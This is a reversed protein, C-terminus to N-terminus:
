SSTDSEELFFYKEFPGGFANLVGAIFAPGPVNYHPNDPPLKVRWLQTGSVGIKAALQTEGRLDQDIATKLFENVNLRITPNKLNQSTTKTM